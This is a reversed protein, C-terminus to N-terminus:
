HVPEVGLLTQVLEINSLGQLAQGRKTQADVEVILTNRQDDASMTRLAADDRIGLQRLAVMVAGVGELQADNYAQYNTQNSHATMEVILTNRQGERDIVNLDYQSRFRGALLCGRIWSTVQGPAGVVGHMSGLAVLALDLNTLTQLEVGMGTQAGIKVIMTNRQDDASM